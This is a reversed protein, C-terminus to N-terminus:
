VPLGYFIGFLIQEVQRAGLETLATEAPTKGNL